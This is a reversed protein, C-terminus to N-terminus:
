GLPAEDDPRVGRPTRRDAPPVVLVPRHAHHLTAMAVSGLLIEQMASRGRSGVVVVAAGRNRACEALAGAVARGTGGQGGPVHLRTVATGGAQPPDALDPAAHGDDVTVQLLSRTSFLRAATTLAAQAGASGDSGVMVPGQDLATDEDILLPHPIVLVPRTTYHVALDSASGLIARAGGLGRSGMLIVDADKEEALEALQLGEGSYSRIVLSEAADWGAAVALTVGTEAMRDAERRGERELAVVFDNINSVNKWLRHRLSTSAFPPTWLHAIWARAQPFLKAGADIAASAAPSGDYGILVRITM